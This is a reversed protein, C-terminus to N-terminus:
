KAILQLFVILLATFKGTYEINLSEDYGHPNSDTGACGSVLVQADPWLEQFKNCLPISGGEGYYLPIGGFVAKTASKMAEDVNGSLDAGKWGNGASSPTYTVRAGYPPDAELVRKLAAAVTNGDVTPPIRLSLKLATRARMVNSGDQISPIGDAGTIALGPKWAKNVLLQAKDQTLLQAGPLPTVVAHCREGLQQAILSCQEVRARPIEAAHAEPLLVEGTEADEIRSLLIRAIRFTSPVLGTAMGSHCPTALHAIDLTGNVVGRLSTCAWFTEYDQTEGDLVLILDAPGIRPRLDDLYRQIESDGSEEGTELLLTFKPYPLAKSHLYKLAALLLYPNYGDDNAGRGYIKGDRIVPDRASLGSSWGAPDLPPMKDLHGYALCVPAGAPATGPIDVYLLPERGPDAYVTTTLGPLGQSEIWGKVTEVAQQILGNTLFTADYAPSINPVRIFAKLGELAFGGEQWAAVSYALVDQIDVM